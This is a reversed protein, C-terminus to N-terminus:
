TDHGNHPRTLRTKILFKRKGLAGPESKIFGLSELLQINEHFQSQRKLLDVLPSNLLINVHEIEGDYSWCERTTWMRCFTVEPIEDPQLSYLFKLLTTADPSTQELELFRGDWPSAYSSQVYHSTTASCCQEYDSFTRVRSPINLTNLLADHLPKRLRNSPALAFSSNCNEQHHM